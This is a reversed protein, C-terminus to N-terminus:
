KAGKKRNTTRSVIRVNNKGKGGGKSLPRKHDAERTDGVKLGAEARSKNRAARNAIQEPKSHYSAYSERIQQPTRHSTKSRVGERTTPKKKM